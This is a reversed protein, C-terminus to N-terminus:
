PTEAKRKAAQMDIKALTDKMADVMARFHQISTVISARRELSIAGTESIVENFVLRVDLSSSSVEMNNSYVSRIGLPNTAPPLVLGAAPKKASKNKAMACSLTPCGLDFTLSFRLV